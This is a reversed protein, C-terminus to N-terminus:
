LGWAPNTGRECALYSIFVYEKAAYSFKIVSRKNVNGCAPWGPWLGTKSGRTFRTKQVCEGFKKPVISEIVFICYIDMNTNLYTGLYPVYLLLFQSVGQQLLCYFFARAIVWNEQPDFTWMEPFEKAATEIIMLAFKKASM